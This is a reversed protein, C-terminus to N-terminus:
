TQNTLIDKYLEVGKDLDEVPIFENPGHCVDIDGPGIIACDCIQSLYAADTAYNVSSPTKRTLSSLIKIFDSNPNQYFPPNDTIIEYNVKYGQLELSRFERNLMDKFMEKTKGPVLRLDGKITVNDCVQNYASGGKIIGLSATSGFEFDDTKQSMLENNSSEIKKILDTVGYISSLGIKPNSSHKSKGKITINYRIFGKHTYILNFNTPEGIVINMNRILEPTTELLEKSGQLGIEESHTLVLGVPLSEKVEEIAKLMCAIPGKM